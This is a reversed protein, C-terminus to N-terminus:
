SYVRLDEESDFEYWEESVDVTLIEVGEGLLRNLTTTMDIKAFQESTLTGLYNKFHQWGAPTVKILGMYQGQIDELSKPKLGIEILRGKSDRKFTEADELPDAFRKKWVSQWNVNNSIVIDGKAECLARITAPTFLIDSYCILTDESRLWEDAQNLSYVMNTSEWNASHFTKSFEPRALSGAQYGTVIGVEEVGAKALAGLAHEILPKGGVNLLAKPSESTLNKMRRGRGAALILARPTKSLHRKLIGIDEPSFKPEREPHWMIGLSREPGEAWEITGDPATALSKWGKPLLRVAWNHYSNVERGGVLHRVGVHGSIKELDGGDMSILFQFGRCIGIVPLEQSRFLHVLERETADRELKDGVDNGGSLILGAPKLSTFLEVAIRPINPVLVPTFGCEWIFQSLRQDLADRTEGRDPYEDVRCSVLVVPRM